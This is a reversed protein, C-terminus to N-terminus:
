IMGIDNFKDLDLFFGEFDIEYELLVRVIEGIKDVGELIWNVIVYDFM